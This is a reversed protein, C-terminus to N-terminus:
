NVGKDAAAPSLKLFAQLTERPFVKRLQDARLTLAPEEDLPTELWQMQNRMVEIDADSPSNNHMLRQAIAREATELDTEVYILHADVKMREAVTWFARRHEAKLFTADVIVSQRQRLLGEALHRLHEYTKRSMESSYLQQKQEEDVRETPAIGFLRKREIDSSIIIADLEDLLQQALHSKGSGSIGQLLILKPVSDEYAYGEAQQIYNLTKLRYSQYELSNKDLQQLRLASIKARVLSRYVQYFRLLDLAEYEATISLYHNLIRRRLAVRQQYDLDILLFALDSIVDIWRFEDNFEIGDFLTPVEDILAINDLHLDGHCERVHGHHKRQSLTEYHTEYQLWTWELLKRLRPQYPEQCWEFLTPFNDLMPQLITRPEGLHSQKDVTAANQHLDAIREALLQEQQHGIMHGHLYRGLVQNPDFQNMKLLYDLPSQDKDAHFTVTGDAACYIPVVELYLSPATRRNLRLEQECFHKRSEPKTFDLFGFDVPKKLKYAYRGTLFVVSIHTEITTIVEVPHPYSGPQCLYDILQETNM